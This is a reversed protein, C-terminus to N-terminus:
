SSSSRRRLMLMVAESQWRVQCSTFTFRMSVGPSGENWPSQRAARRATSEASIATLAVAPTSTCVSRSHLRAPSCPTARARAIVISSRSRASKSAVM